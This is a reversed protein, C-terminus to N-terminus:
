NNQQAKKRFESPTTGMFKKFVRNFYANSEFGCEIGIDHIPKNSKQLKTCAKNIRLSNLYYIITMGTQKKFLACLYNKSMYLASSVQELNSIDMYNENLYRMIPSLESEYSLPNKHEIKESYTHLIDLIMSLYIYKRNPNEITLKQYAEIEKIGHEDISIIPKTFCSLLENVANKTFFKLLYSDTFNVCIGSYPTDGFSRHIEGPKIMAVDYDTTVYVNSDIILTRIGSKLIYIEYCNHYHFTPFNTGYEKNDKHIIYDNQYLSEELKM